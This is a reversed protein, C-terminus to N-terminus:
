EFKMIYRDAVTNNSATFRQITSRDNSREVMTCEHGRKVKYTFSQFAYPGYPDIHAM